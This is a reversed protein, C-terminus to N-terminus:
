SGRDNVKPGTSVPYSCKTICDPLNCSMYQNHAVFNMDLRYMYSPSLDCHLGYFAVAIWPFSSGADYHLFM